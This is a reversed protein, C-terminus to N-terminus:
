TKLNYNRDLELRIPYSFYTFGLEEAWGSIHYAECELQHYAGASDYGGIVINESPDDCMAYSPEGQADIILYATGTLIM